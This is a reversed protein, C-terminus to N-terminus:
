KNLNDLNQHMIGATIASGIGLPLFILEGGTFVEGLTIVAFASCSLAIAWLKLKNKSNKM